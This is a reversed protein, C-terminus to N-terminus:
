SGKLETVNSNRSEEMPNGAEVPMSGRMPIQPNQRSHFAGRQPAYAGESAIEPVRAPFPSSRGHSESKPNLDPFGASQFRSALWM